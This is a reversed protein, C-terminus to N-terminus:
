RERCCLNTLHGRQNVDVFQAMLVSRFFPQSVIFIDPLSKSHLTASIAISRHKRELVSCQQTKGGGQGDEHGLPPEKAVRGSINPVLIM